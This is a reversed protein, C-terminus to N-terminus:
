SWNTFSRGLLKELKQIDDKYAKLWRANQEETLPPITKNSSFLQRTIGLKQLKVAIYDMDWDKLKIRIYQVMRFIRPFRPLTRAKGVKKQAHSPDFLTSDIDLFDSIQKFTTKLNDDTDSLEESFLILFQNKGFLQFWKELQQAYLGRNFGHNHKEMFHDFDRYNFGEGSQFIMQYHSYARKVPHRLIVILKVDPLKQKIKEACTEEYIYNPTIEGVVKHDTTKDHFWKQYWSMGREYYWDFFHVEKRKEPIFVQPHKVLQAHLWSTGGKQVGIGIFDPLNKQDSM